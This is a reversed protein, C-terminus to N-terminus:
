STMEKFPNQMTYQAVTDAFSGIVRAPVGVAVSNSPIDKTIVSGAGVIVNDGITVDYLIISRGGIFVNDGIVVRGKHVSSVSRGNMKNIMYSIIDHNFIAVDAAINVNNGFSVLKPEAPLKHPECYCREGIHAFVKANKIYAARERGSKAIMLRFMLIRRKAVFRLLSLKKKVKM